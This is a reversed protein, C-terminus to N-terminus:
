QMPFNIMKGVLMGNKFFIDGQQEWFEPLVAPDNNVHEKVM